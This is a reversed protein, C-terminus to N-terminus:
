LFRYPAWIKRRHTDFVSFVNQEDTRTVGGRSEDDAPPSVDRKAGSHSTGARSSHQREPPSRADPVTESGPTETDPTFAAQSAAGPPLSPLAKEKTSASGNTSPKPKGRKRRRAM